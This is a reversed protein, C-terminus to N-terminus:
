KEIRVIKFGAKHIEQIVDIIDHMSVAYHIANLIRNFDEHHLLWYYKSIDKGIQYELEEVLRESYARDSM